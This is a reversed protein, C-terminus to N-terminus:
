VQKPLIAKYSLFYFYINEHQSALREAIVRTDDTSADDNLIIEWTLNSLELINKVEISM